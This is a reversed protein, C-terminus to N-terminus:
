PRTAYAFHPEGFEVVNRFIAANDDSPFLDFHNKGIFYEPNKGDACAYAKNVCIFNFSTDM